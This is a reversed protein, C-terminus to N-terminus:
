LWHVSGTEGTLFEAMNTSGIFSATRHIISNKREYPLRENIVDKSFLPKLSNIEHKALSSLEDLNM